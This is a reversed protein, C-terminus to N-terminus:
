PSSDVEAQLSIRTLGATRITDLVQFLRQYPLGRDAFLLVGKEGGGRARRRLEQELGRLNTKRKDLYVTGDEKVTVSIISTKDIKATNSVPLRVPLGRHVAMSLMAYIFFVLLLFVIDILPLMEIRPRRPGPIRVKM